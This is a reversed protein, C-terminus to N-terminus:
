TRKYLRENEVYKSHKPRTLIYGPGLVTVQLDFRLMLTELPMSRMQVTEGEGRGGGVVIRTIVFAMNTSQENYRLLLGQQKCIPERCEETKVRLFGLVPQSKIDNDLM